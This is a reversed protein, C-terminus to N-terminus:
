PSELSRNIAYFTLLITCFFFPSTFITTTYLPQCLSLTDAFTGGWEWVCLFAILSGNMGEEGKREIKTTIIFDSFFPLLFILYLGHIYSSFQDKSLSIFETRQIDFNTASKQSHHICVVRVLAGRKKLKRIWNQYLPTYPLPLILWLVLPMCPLRNVIYLAASNNRLFEGGDRIYLDSLLRRSFTCPRRM